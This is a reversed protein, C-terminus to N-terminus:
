CNLKLGWVECILQFRDTRVVMRWMNIYKDTRQHFCWLQHIQFSSNPQFKSVPYTLCPELVERNWFNWRTGLTKSIWTNFQSMNKLTCNQSWFLEFLKLHRRHVKITKLGWVKFIFQFIDTRVAMLLMLIYKGTQQYLYRNIDSKLWVRVSNIQSIVFLQKYSVQVCSVKYTTRFGRQNLLTM